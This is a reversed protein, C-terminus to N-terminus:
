EPCPDQIQDASITVNTNRPEQNKERINKEKNQNSQDHDVM